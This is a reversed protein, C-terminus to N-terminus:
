PPKALGVWDIPARSQCNMPTSLTRQWRLAWAKRVDDRRMWRAMMHMLAMSDAGGSVALALPGHELEAFLGPMEEDSIPAAARM